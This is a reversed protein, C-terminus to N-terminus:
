GSCCTAPMAILLDHKGFQQLFASALVPCTLVETKGADAQEAIDDAPQQQQRRGLSGQKHGPQQWLLPQEQEQGQQSEIQRSNRAHAGTDTSPIQQCIQKGYDDQPESNVEAKVVSDIHSPSTGMVQCAPEALRSRRPHHDAVQEGGTEKPKPAKNAARRRSVQLQKQRKAPAVHKGPARKRGRDRGRDPGNVPEKCNFPGATSPESQQSVANDAQSAPYDFADAQRQPGAAQQVVSDLEPTSIPMASCDDSAAAAGLAAQKDNSLALQRPQDSPVPMHKNGQCSMGGAEPNHSLPRSANTADLLATPQAAQPLNVQNSPINAVPDISVTDKGTSHPSDPSIAGNKLHVAPRGLAPLLSEDLPLLAPCFRFHQTAMDEDEEEGDDYLMHHKEQKLLSSVRRDPHPPIIILPISVVDQCTGSSNHWRCLWLLQVAPLVQHAATASGGQQLCGASVTQGPGWTLATM